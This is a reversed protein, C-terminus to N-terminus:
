KSTQILHVKEKICAGQLDKDFTAITANIRIALELYSADYATLNHKKALQGIFYLSEKTTSFNDIQLPLNKLLNTYEFYSSEQIRDRKLASLLVNNCELFFISPVYIEYLYYQINKDAEDPLIGSMIFSCDVVLNM